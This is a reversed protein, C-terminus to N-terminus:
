GAAAIRSIRIRWEDPGPVLYTWEFQGTRTLGFQHYLPLPNHTNVLILSDGVALADFCDFITKHRISADLSQADITEVDM